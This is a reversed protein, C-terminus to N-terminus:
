HKSVFRQDCITCVFPKEGTHVRAHDDLNSQYFFTKGCTDCMHKKINDKKYQFKRQRDQPPRPSRTPPSRSKEPLEKTLHGVEKIYSENLIIDEQMEVYQYHTDGDDANETSSEESPQNEINPSIQNSVLVNKLQNDSQKM